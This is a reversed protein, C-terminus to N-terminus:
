HQVLIKHSSKWTYGELNLIYIGDPYNETKVAITSSSIETANWIMKGTSGSTLTVLKLSPPLDKIVMLNNVPNPFINLDINIPRDISLTGYAFPGVDSSDLPSFRVMATSYHDAGPNSLSARPQGEVDEVISSTVASGLSFLPTSSTSKWYEFVTSFSIMPDITRVETTDFSTSTAGSLTVASGTPYMLNNQWEIETGPDNNIDMISVLANESGKIINNAIIIDKLDKNYNNNNDFGLEIGHTNNILSNHAILVREARFHKSYSTSQGDIADGQTLTIPADWRTGNLGELYNNIIVHDTGYVRIGGTYLSSGAASTGVPKNDGFFFNGEVLNRNGHRLSLSGYSSRFTNHRIINDCSKVSVVEPDGDCNEFLNHEVITYGSSPSMDSWGIRISEQENVARPGNNRFHNMRILDNTSQYYIEDSGDDEHSGDVTIYHGPTTKNQFINHDIVNHHSPYLFPLTNDNWVGGIYVWKVSETTTLEFTNRTIQIHHCGELKVLTEDSTADFVFGQLVCHASKKFVFKSEGTLLVGGVSEAKIIIPNTASGTNEVTVEFDNYSGDSVIFVGGNNASNVDTELDGADTYLQASAAISYLSLFILIFRKSTITM